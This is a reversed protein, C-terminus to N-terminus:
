RRAILRPFYIAKEIAYISMDVVKDPGRLDM